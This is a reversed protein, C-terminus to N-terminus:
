ILYMSLLLSSVLLLGYYIERIPSLHMVKIIYGKRTLLDSYHMSKVHCLVKADQDQGRSIQFTIYIDITHIYTFNECDNRIYDVDVNIYLYINISERKFLQIDPPQTLVNSINCLNSM